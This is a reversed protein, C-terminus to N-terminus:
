RRKSVILYGAGLAGVFVGAFIAIKAGTSMFGQDDATPAVAGPPLDGLQSQWAFPMDVQVINPDNMYYRGQYGTVGTYIQTPDYSYPRATQAVAIYDPQEGSRAGSQWKAALENASEGFTAIVM